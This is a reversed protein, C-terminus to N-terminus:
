LTGSAAAMAVTALLLGGLHPPHSPLSGGRLWECNYTSFTGTSKLHIRVSKGERTVKTVQFTEFPPVLLQQEGPNYSFNQIIAGHCTNVQLLTVNGQGQAVEPSLSTVMFQGFRVARGPWADLWVDGFGRFGRHCRRPDWLRRLAESLLFHLAKFHFGDRYERSSIGAHRTAAHFGASPEEM